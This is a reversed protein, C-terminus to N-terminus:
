RRLPFALDGRVCRPLGVLCTRFVRPPGRAYSRRVVLRPILSGLRHCVVAGLLTVLGICVAGLEAAGDWGEHAAHLCVMALLVILLVIVIPGLVPHRRGRELMRRLRIM